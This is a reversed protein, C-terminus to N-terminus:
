SNETGAAKVLDLFRAKSIETMLEEKKTHGVKEQSVEQTTKVQTALIANFLKVVGRQAVKKLKREKDIVERAKEPEDAGPLLNKVRNKDHTERRDALMLRRAKADLKDSELKKITSKNRALIPDKRDYAKLKSGIIANFASAFSESGDDLNKKKKLKPIEDDSEDSSGSDNDSSVNDVDFEDDLGSDESELEEGSKEAELVPDEESSLPKQETQAASKTVLPKGGTIKQKKTAAGMTSQLQLLIEDSSILIKQTYQLYYNSCDAISAALSLCIPSKPVNSLKHTHKVTM